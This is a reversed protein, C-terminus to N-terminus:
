YKSKVNRIAKKKQKEMKKKEKNERKKKKQERIWDKNLNNWIIKKLRSEEETLIMSDIQEDDIDSLSIIGGELDKKLALQASTEKKMLPSQIMGSQHQDM